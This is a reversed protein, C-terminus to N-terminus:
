AHATFGEVADDHHATSGLVAQEALGDGAGGANRHGAEVELGGAHAVHSVLQQGQSGDGGECIEVLGKAGAQIRM